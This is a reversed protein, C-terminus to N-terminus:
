RIEKSSEVQAVVVPQIPPGSTLAQGMKSAPLQTAVLRALSANLLGFSSFCWRYMVSADDKPTPMGGSFACFAYYIALSELGHAEIWTLM